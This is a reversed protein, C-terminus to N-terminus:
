DDTKKGGIGGIEKLQKVAGPALDEMLDLFDMPVLRKVRKLLLPIPSAPEHRQYYTLLKDLAVLVQDRDTLEDPIAPRAGSAAGDGATGKGPPATAPAAGNSGNSAANTAGLAGAMEDLTRGLPALDPADNGLRGRLDQDLGALAQRAAVLAARTDAIGQDSDLAGQILGAEPVTEGPSPAERGQALHIARLGFRGIGRAELIPMDRLDRLIGSRDALEALVTVRRFAQEGPDSSETDLAPHLDDWFRDITERLLEIGACLGAPGERSAAARMLMICVRLDRTRSACDLAQDYIAQWDPPHYIRVEDNGVSKYDVRGKIAQQLALYAGDHLAPDAGTPAEAAIPEVLSAVNLTMTKVM